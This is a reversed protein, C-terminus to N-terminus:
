FTHLNPVELDENDAIWRRSPAAAVEDEHLKHGVIADGADTLAIAGSEPRLDHRGHDLVDEFAIDQANIGKMELRQPALNIAGAIREPRIDREHTNQRAQLNGKPVNDPLCHLLRNVFKEAAPHM